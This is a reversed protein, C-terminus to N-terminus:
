STWREDTVASAEVQRSMSSTIAGTCNSTRPRSTAEASRRLDDAELAITARRFEARSGLVLAFPLALVIGAVVVAAHLARLLPPLLTFGFDRRPGVHHSAVDAIDHGTAAM